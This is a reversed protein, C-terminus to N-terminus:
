VSKNGQMGQEFRDMPIGTIWSGAAAVAAPTAFLAPMKLAGGTFTIMQGDLVVKSNYHRNYQYKCEEKTINYTTLVKGKSVFTAADIEQPIAAMGSVTM